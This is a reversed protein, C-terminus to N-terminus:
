NKPWTYLGRFFLGIVISVLLVIAVNGVIAM